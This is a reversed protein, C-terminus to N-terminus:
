RLPVILLTTVQIEIVLRNWKEKNCVGKCSLLCFIAYWLFGGTKTNAMKRSQRKWWAVDLVLEARTVIVASCSSSLSPLCYNQLTDVWSGIARSEAAESCKELISPLCLKLFHYYYWKNAKLFYVNRKFILSTAWFKFRGHRIWNQVESLCLLSLKQSVDELNLFFIYRKYIFM